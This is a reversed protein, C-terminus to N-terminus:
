VKQVYGSLFEIKLLASAIADFEILHWSNLKKQTPASMAISSNNFWIDVHNALHSVSVDIYEPYAYGEKKICRSIAVEIEKSLLDLSKKRELKRISTLKSKRATNVRNKSVKDKVWDVGKEAKLKKWLDQTSGSHKRKNCLECTLALNGPWNTGNKSIPILHDIHFSGRHGVLGLKDGCFYCEGNQFAYLSQIDEETYFGETHKREFSNFSM